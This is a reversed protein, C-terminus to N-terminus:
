SPKGRAALARQIASELEEIAYPKPVVEAILARSTGNFVEDQAFGTTLVIPVRKTRLPALAEALQLGTMNPMSHDTVVLDFRQPSAAFRDLAERPDNSVDVDYGLMKLLERCVSAVAPEDDVLLIRTKREGEPPEPPESSLAREPQESLPLYVDVRTGKGRASSLDIVGGHGNIVGHVVSLGLGAGGGVERAAQTSFFPEFARRATAEDMGEGTDIVELHAWAGSKLIPHKQRAVASPALADLRVTLQGPKHRMAHAANTALNLLAQQIQVEDGVVRLKSDALSSVLQVDRPLSARLLEIADRVLETLDITKREGASSKGLLVMRQVLARARRASDEIREFLEREPTGAPVLGQGLEAGGLIPTLLNNFDHAIGSALTGYAELKQAHVLQGQLRQQDETARRESTIDRLSLVAHVTAGLVVSSGRAELMHPKGERDLMTCEASYSVGPNKVGAAFKSAILPKDQEAVLDLSVRGKLEDPKYGLTREVSPSVYLFRGAHDLVAVVDIANEVLSRFLAESDALAQTARRRERLLRAVVAASILAVVAATVVAM